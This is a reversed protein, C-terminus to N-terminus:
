YIRRLAKDKTVFATYKGDLISLFHVCNYLYCPLLKFNRLVL